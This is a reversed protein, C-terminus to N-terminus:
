TNVNSDKVFDLYSKVISIIVENVTIKSLAAEQELLKIIKEDLDLTIEEYEEM